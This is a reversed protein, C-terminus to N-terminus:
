TVVDGFDRAQSLLRRGLEPSSDSGSLEPARPQDTTVSQLRWGQSALTESKLM